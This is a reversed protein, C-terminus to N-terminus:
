SSNLRTSKRDEPYQVSLKDVLKRADEGMKLEPHNAALLILHKVVELREPIQADQAEITWHTGLFAIINIAILVFTVVPWRRGQMNEHRLPLLFMCTGKAAPLSEPRAAAVKLRPTGM